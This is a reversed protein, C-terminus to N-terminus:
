SAPSLLSGPGKAPCDISPTPLCATTLELMGPVCLPIQSNPCPFPEQDLPYEQFTDPLGSLGTSDMFFFFHYLPINPLLGPSLPCPGTRLSVALHNWSTPPHPALLLSGSVWLSMQWCTALVQWGAWVWWTLSM